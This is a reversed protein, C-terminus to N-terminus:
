KPPKPAFRIKEYTPPLMPRSPKSQESLEAEAKQLAMATAILGPHTGVRGRPFASRDIEEDSSSEDSCTEPKPPASKFLAAGRAGEAAARAHAAQAEALRAEAAQRRAREAAQAKEVEQRRAGEAARARAAEQQRAEAEAVQTRRAAEQQRAQEAAAKAKEAQQRSLEARLRETEQKQLALERQALEAEKQALIKERDIVRTSAAVPSFAGTFSPFQASDKMYRPAAGGVPASLIEDSYGIYQPGSRVSVSSVKDSYGMDRPGSKAASAPGRAEPLSAAASSTSESARYLPEIAQIVWDATPRLAADQAWCREIVEKFAPLTSDPLKPRKKQALVWGPIVMRANRGGLMEEFPVKHTLLEYLVMALAYIDVATTYPDKVDEDFLEPAMCYITGVVGAQAASSHSADTKIKALGFDGIKANLGDDLLVNMSKLDRHIIKRAHLYGLGFLIDLIIRYKKNWPLDLCNRLLDHLNGRPMLEMVLAQKSSALVAGYLMLLQPCRLQLMCEMERRLETEDTNCLLVKIAVKRGSWEGKFVAGFGGIGLRQDEFIKIDRESIKHEQYM